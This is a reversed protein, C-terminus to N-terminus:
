MILERDIRLDLLLQFQLLTVFSLVTKFITKHLLAFRFIHFSRDVYIFLCHAFLFLGEFCYLCLVSPM